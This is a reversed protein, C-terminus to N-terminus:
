AHAAGAHPACDMAGCGAQRRGRGGVGPQPVNDQRARRTQEAPPARRRGRVSRQRDHDMAPVRVSAGAHGPSAAYEGVVGCASREGERAETALQVCACTNADILSATSRLVEAANAHGCRAAGEDGKVLALMPGELGTTDWVGSRERTHKNEKMFKIEKGQWGNQPLVDERGSDSGSSAVRAEDASSQAADASGSPAQEFKGDVVQEVKRDVVPEVKGDVVQEVKGDVAPSVAGNDTKGWSMEVKLDERGIVLKRNAGKEWQPDGQGKVNVIKFELAVDDPVDMSGRWVDGEHWQLSLEHTTVRQPTAATSRFDFCLQAIAELLWLLVHVGARTALEAATSVVILSRVSLKAGDRAKWRGLAKHDGVVCINDGYPV